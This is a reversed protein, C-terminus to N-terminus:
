KAGFNFVTNAIWVQVTSKYTDVNWVTSSIKVNWHPIKVGGGGLVDRM